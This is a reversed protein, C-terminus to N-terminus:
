RINSETDRVNNDQDRGERGATITKARDINGQVKDRAGERNKDSKAINSRNDRNKRETVTREIKTAESYTKGTEIITM